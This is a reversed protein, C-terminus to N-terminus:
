GANSDRWQKPTVGSLQKFVRSFHAQDAFGCSLAIDMLTRKPEALMDKSRTIRYSTVFQHPTQGITDKFLRSFYYPSLAAQEALDNLAITQSFHQEIYGLVKKYHKATFRPNFAFTEGQEVGYKQLLKVLFVRAFSEFMIHAGSTPSQLAELMMRSAQVMDEDIFQPISRLQQDSLLMGLETQAFHELKDPDLTIIIVKSQAYWKWGSAMGAPTIIIENLQIEFDRHEDDRWNEVRHVHENLNILVHHQSFREIPMTDAPAEFYELSLLQAASARAVDSSEILPASPYIDQYTKM